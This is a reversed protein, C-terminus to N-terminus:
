SAATQRRRRRRGRNGSQCGLGVSAASAVTGQGCPSSALASTAGVRPATPVSASPREALPRLPHPPASPVALPRSRDPPTSEMARRRAGLLHTVNASKSQADQSGGDWEDGSTGARGREDPTRRKREVAPRVQSSPEYLSTHHATGDGDEEVPPTQTWKTEAALNQRNDRELKRRFKLFEFVSCM